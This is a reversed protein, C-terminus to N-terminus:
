LGVSFPIHRAKDENQMILNGSINNKETIKNPM